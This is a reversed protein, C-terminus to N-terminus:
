KGGKVTGPQRMPQAILRAFLLGGGEEARENQARLVEVDAEDILDLALGVLNGQRGKEREVPLEPFDAGGERPGAEGVQEAHALALEDEERIRLVRGACVGKGRGAHSHFHGRAFPQGRKRAIGYEEPRIAVAPANPEGRGHRDDAAIPLGGAQQHHVVRGGAPQLWEGGAPKGGHAHGQGGGQQEDREEADM